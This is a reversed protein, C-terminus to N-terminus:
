PVVETSKMRRMLSRRKKELYVGFVMLFIGSILFMVGTRAMSGFLDCYAALIDLAIFVIGLNVLFPSREQLGIQVQLLCFVFLALTGGLYSWSEGWFYRHSGGGEDLRWCGFWVTAMFVMMGLLAALWTWRWQRTLVALNKLGFLLLLLAGLGLAPFFWQRIEPNDWDFFEKWALPYAFILFALLGFKETVGAFEPFKTARLCYGAGLYVLGLLAYLLVQRDSECYILGGSENVEFGFWTGFAILLLVHQAKSRLLWPLAAIGIWWLLFANPPRSVIHYIQGILAINALFLCSGIWHLAEGTKRYKGRVERGDGTAPSSRLTSLWWGGAHFGLMLLLGAAIKVGHPIGDWHAAILLTIGSAILVAGIISVIALFKGGGDEKLQFHGIIKRRQEDTILGADHLKQIDGYKMYGGCTGSM